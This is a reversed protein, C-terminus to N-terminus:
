THAHVTSEEFFYDQESEKSGDNIIRAPIGVATAGSPVSNIVVSNAGIKAGSGVVIPGLISANAGIVVNEGIDPHRKGKIIRRTGLTVGHYILTGKGISATSGIVVGISHDIVVGKAIQAAPHIDASFLIRAVYSFFKALFRLRRTWLSHALRYFLLAHFGASFLIIDSRREASPDLLMYYRLDERLDRLLATM